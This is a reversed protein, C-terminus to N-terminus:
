LAARPEIRYLVFRRGAAIPTLRRPLPDAGPPGILYLYQYRAPWGLLNAPTAPRPRNTAAALLLSLTQPAYDHANAVALSRYPARPQMPQLGPMSYLSSVFVGAAPAALTPAYFLPRDEPGYAEDRAAVLVPAGPTLRAFSAAFERYDRQHHAWAADVSLDNRAIIAATLALAAARWPASPLSVATFAPLIVGAATLLRVDVNQSGFLMSPMVLYLGALGGAIWLGARDLRLRGTAAMVLILGALGAGTLISGPIDYVNMFNVAWLAKLGFDWSLGGQSATGGALAMIALAIVVPSAMFAALRMLAVPSPRRPLRSLEYLGITLGYVGLDFFHSVFLAAVSAAHVGWRLGAPRDRLGIWLGSTWAALGLGFLFNLQGWALPLSFLVALAGLGGIRCRGKVTWELFAAGSVLLAQSFGLFLKSAAAAGIWRALPPVILDM